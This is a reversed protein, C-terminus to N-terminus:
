RFYLEYQLNEIVKQDNEQAQLRQRFIGKFFWYEPLHKLRFLAKKTVAGGELYDIRFAGTLYELKRAEATSLIDHHAIRETENFLITDQVLKPHLGGRSVGGDEYWISIINFALELPENWLYKILFPGDEWLCYKEDFYNYKEITKRSFYMASGSAMDYFQGLIFAKYQEHPTTYTQIIEWEEHHPLFCIPQYDDQYLLRSTVVVNAHKSLFINVIKSVTDKEFFTDGRSLNLIYDGKSVKYAANLSRVTGINQAQRIITFGELHAGYNYILTEIEDRPFDESCDDCIIYEIRPYDQRLVSQITEAIRSFNNYTATIVTILPSRQM